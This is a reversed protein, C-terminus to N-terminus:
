IKFWSRIIFKRKNVLGHSGDSWYATFWLLASFRGLVNTWNSLRYVFCFLLDICFRRCSLFFRLCSDVLFDFLVDADLWFGLSFNTKLIEFNLALQSLSSETNYELSLELLVNLFSDKFPVGHFSDGFINKDSFFYWFIGFELFVDKGSELAFEDDSKDHGELIDVVNVEDHFTGISTVCVTEDFFIWGFKRLVLSQSLLGNFEDSGTDNEAELVKM